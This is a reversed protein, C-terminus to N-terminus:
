ESIGRAALYGAFQKDSAMIHSVLWDRLYSTIELSIVLKGASIREHCDTMYAIFKEHEGIHRSLYPYNHRAMLKQEATFHFETYDLVNKLLDTLAATAEKKRISDYFANINDILVKHQEDIMNVGVMIKEDFQVIPM